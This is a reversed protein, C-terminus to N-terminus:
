LEFRRPRSLASLPDFIGLVGTFTLALWASRGKVGMAYKSLSGPVASKGYSAQRVHQILASM